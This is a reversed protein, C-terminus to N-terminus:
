HHAVARQKKELFKTFHPDGAEIREKGWQQKVLKSITLDSREFVKRQARGKMWKIDNIYSYGVAYTLLFYTVYCLVSSDVLSIAKEWTTSLGLSIGHLSFVLTKILM